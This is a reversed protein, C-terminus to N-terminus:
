KNLNINSLITNAVGHCGIRRIFDLQGNLGRVYLSKLEVVTDGIYYLNRGDRTKASSQKVRISLKM